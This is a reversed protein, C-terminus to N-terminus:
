LRVPFTSTITGLNWPGASSQSRIILSRSWFLLVILLGVLFYPLFSLQGALLPARSSDTLFFLTVGQVISMLTLEMNSVLSDLEERSKIPAPVADRMPDILQDAM